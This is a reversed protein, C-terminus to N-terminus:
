MARALLVVAASTLFAPLACSATGYRNWFMNGLQNVPIAKEAITMPARTGAAIMAMAAALRNVRLIKLSNKLGSAGGLSWVCTECHTESSTLTPASSNAIVSGLVNEILRCSSPPM